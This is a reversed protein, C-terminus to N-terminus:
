YTTIQELYKEQLDLFNPNKKYIMFENNDIKKESFETLYKDAKKEEIVPKSTKVFSELYISDDEDEDEDEDDSNTTDSISGLGLKSTISNDDSDVIEVDNDSEESPESQNNIERYYETIYGSLKKVTDPHYRDSEVSNVIHELYTQFTKINILHEKIAESSMINM